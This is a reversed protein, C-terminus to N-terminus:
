LHLGKLLTELGEETTRVESIIWIQFLHLHDTDSCTSNWLSVDQSSKIGQDREITRVTTKKCLNKKKGIRKVEHIHDKLNPLTLTEARGCNNKLCCSCNELQYLHTTYQRLSLFYCGRVSYGKEKIWPLGMKVKGLPNRGSDWLLLIHYERQKGEINIIALVHWKQKQPIYYKISNLLIHKFFM